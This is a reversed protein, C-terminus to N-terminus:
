FVPNPLILLIFANLKIAKCKWFSSLGVQSQNYRLADQEFLADNDDDYDDDDEVDDYLYDPPHISSNNSTNNVIHHYPTTTTINTPYLEIRLRPSDEVQCVSLTISLSIYIIYM